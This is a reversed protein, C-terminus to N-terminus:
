FFRSLDCYQIVVAIQGSKKSESTIVAVIPSTKKNCHTIILLLSFLFAMLVYNGKTVLQDDSTATLLKGNYLNALTFYKGNKPFSKKWMQANISDNFKEQIVIDEQTGLFSKSTINEITFGLAGEIKSLKWKDKSNFLNAKDSLTM